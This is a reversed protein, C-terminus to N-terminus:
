RNELMRSLQSNSINITVNNRRRGGNSLKLGYLCRSIPWMPYLIAFSNYGDVVLTAGHFLKTIADENDPFLIDMLM